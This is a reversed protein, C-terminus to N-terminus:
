LVIWLIGFTRLTMSDDSTRAVPHLIGIVLAVVGPALLVVWTGWWGKNMVWM